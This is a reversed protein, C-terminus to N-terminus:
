SSPQKEWTNMDQLQRRALDRYHSCDESRVYRAWTLRAKKLDRAALSEQVSQFAERYRNDALILQVRLQHVAHCLQGRVIPVANVGYWRTIRALLKKHPRALEPKIGHPLDCWMLLLGLAKSLNNKRVGKLGSELVTAAASWKRMKVFAAALVSQHTMLQAQGRFPLAERQRLKVLALKLGGKAMLVDAEAHLVDALLDDHGAIGSAFQELRRLCASWRLKKKLSECERLIAYYRMYMAHRDM